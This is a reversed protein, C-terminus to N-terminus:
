SPLRPRIFQKQTLNNSTVTGVETPSHAIKATAPPRRALIHIIGTRHQLIAMNNYQTRTNLKGVIYTHDSYVQRCEAM